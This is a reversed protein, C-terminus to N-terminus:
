SSEEEGILPELLGLLRALAGRNRQVIELGKNGRRRAARPDSLLEDVASVLEAVDNVIHCTM